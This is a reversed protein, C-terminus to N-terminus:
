HNVGPCAVANRRRMPHSLFPGNRRKAVCHRHRVSRLERGSSRRPDHGVADITGVEIVVVQRAPQREVMRQLPVRRSRLKPHQAQALGAVLGQRREIQGIQHRHPQRVEFGGIGVDSRRPGVRLM